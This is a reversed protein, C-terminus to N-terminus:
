ACARTCLDRGEDQQFGDVGDERHVVAVIPEDVVETRPTNENGTQRTQLRVHTFKAPFM